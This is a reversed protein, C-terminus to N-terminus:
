IVETMSGAQQPRDDYEPQLSDPDPQPQKGSEPRGDQERKRQEKELKRQERRLERESKIEDRQSITGLGNMHTNVQRPNGTYLIAGIGNMTANLTDKPHVIVQGIGDVTVHADTAILDGLDAFGAGEMDVTLEDLEGSAHLRAAGDVDVRSTGGKFGTLQVDNGGQLRLASLHPVGIRVIIRSRKGNWGWDKSSTKIHLTNGRVDTSTHEVAKDSGNITLSESEGVAIELRASGDMEIADFRSVLRTETRIEGSDYDHGGCAALLLLLAGWALTRIGRQSNM